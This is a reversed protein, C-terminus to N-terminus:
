LAVQIKTLEDDSRDRLARDLLDSFGLLAAWHRLCTTDMQGAGVRLLGKADERQRESSIAAWQSVM